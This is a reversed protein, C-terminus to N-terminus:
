NSREKPIPGGDEIREIYRWARHRLTYTRMSLKQEFNHENGNGDTYSISVLYENPPEIESQRLSLAHDFAHGVGGGPPLSSIHDVLSHLHRMNYHRNCNVLEPNFSLRVDFATLTGVNQVILMIKRGGDAKPNEFSVHINPRFISELQEQTHAMQAGSQELAREGNLKASAMLEVAREAAEVSNDTDASQKRIYFISLGGIIFTLGM